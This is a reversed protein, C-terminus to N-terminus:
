PHAFFLACGQKNQIHQAENIRFVEETRTIAIHGGRQVPSVPTVIALDRWENFVRKLSYESEKSLLGLSNGDMYLSGDPVFFHNRYNWLPDDQDMQLAFNKDTSFDAAM